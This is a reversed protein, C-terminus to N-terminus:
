DHTGNPGGVKRDLDRKEAELRKVEVESVWGQARLLAIVERVVKETAKGNNSADKSNYLVEAFEQDGEGELDSFDPQYPPPAPFHPNTTTNLSSDYILQGTKIDRAVEVRVNGRLFSDVQVTPTENESFWTIKDGDRTTYTHEFQFSPSM